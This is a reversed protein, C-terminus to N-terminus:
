DGASRLADMTTGAAAAVQEAPIDPSIGAPIGTGADVVIVDVGGARLREALYAYDPGKTDLTGVLAVAAMLLGGATDRRVAGPPLAPSGTM